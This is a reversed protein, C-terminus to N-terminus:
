YQKASVHHPHGMKQAIRMFVWLDLKPDHKMYDIISASFFTSLYYTHCMDDQFYCSHKIREINVVM